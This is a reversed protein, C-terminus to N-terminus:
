PKCLDSFTEGAHAAIYPFRTLEETSGCCLVDFGVDDSHQHLHRSARYVPVL